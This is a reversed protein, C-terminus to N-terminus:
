EIHKTILTPRLVRKDRLGTIFKMTQATNTYKAKRSQTYKEKMEHTQTHHSSEFQNKATETSVTRSNIVNAMRLVARKYEWINWQYDRQMNQTIPHIETQVASRTQEIKATQDRIILLKADALNRLTQELNLFKILHVERRALELARAMCKEPSKMFSPAAINSSFAYNGNKYRMVGKEPKGPVLLGDTEILTWCCFGRFELQQNNYDHHLKESISGPFLQKHNENKIITWSADKIDLNLINVDFQMSFVMRHQSNFSNYIEKLRIGHDQWKTWINHLTKFHPFVQGVAQHLKPIVVANLRNVTEEFEQFLIGRMTELNKLYSILSRFNECAQRYVLILEKLYFFDNKKKVGILKLGYGDRIRTYQINTLAYQTLLQARYEMIELTTEINSKIALIGNQLLSPLNPIGQGGKECKQNYLRIGTTLQLLTYITERRVIHLLTPFARIEESKLISKLVRHVERYVLKEKPNGLGSAITIYYVVRRLFEKEQLPREPEIIAMILSYLRDDLYKRYKRVAQEASDFSIEFTHQLKLTAIRPDNTNRMRAVVYKIFQQIQERKHLLDKKLGRNPDLKLLNVYYSAFDADVEVHHYQCERIVERVINKILHIEEQEKNM